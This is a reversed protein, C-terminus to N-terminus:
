ITIRGAELLEVFKDVFDPNFQRGKWKVLEAAAEKLSLVKNYGRGTVMADFSDAIAIIQAGRPIFNGSLGHPYGSGDFKEHHHMILPVLKKFASVPELIKAGEVQHRKILEFEEDTLKEKKHLISDPLSIKGIDHLLAAEKILGIEDKAIGLGEALTVSFRYVRDTHGATYVDKAELANMLAYIMNFYAGEAEKHALKLSNLTHELERNRQELDATVYGFEGEQHLEEEEGSVGLVVKDKVSDFLCIGFRANDAKSLAFEACRIMDSSSKVESHPHSVVGLSIDLGAEGEPTKFRFSGIADKVNKAYKMAKVDDADKLIIAVRDFSLRAAIPNKAPIPRMLRGIAFLVVAAQKKGYRSVIDELNDVRFIVVSLASKARISGKFLENLSLMFYRHTYLGSDHDTIVMKKLRSSEFLLVAYHYGNAALFGLVAMIPLSLYDFRYGAFFFAPIIFMLVFLEVLTFLSGRLLDLNFVVLATVLGLSLALIFFIHGPVSKTDEDSMITALTNANVIVGPMKGLPTLMIDHIVESTAGVLVIKDEIYKSPIDGKVVRWFPLTTINSRGARYEIAKSVGERIDISKVVDAGKRLVITRGDYDISDMSVGLYAALALVEFSYLYGGINRSYATLRADRLRDDSSNKKNVFGVARAAQALASHPVMLSNDEGIYSALIVNGASRISGALLKDEEEDSTGAFVIDLAIVRPNHMSIKDLMDAYYGRPWPYKKAMEKISEDDVSIVVMDDFAKPKPLIDVALGSLLDSAKFRPSDLIHLPVFIFFYLITFFFVSLAIRIVHDNFLSRKPM